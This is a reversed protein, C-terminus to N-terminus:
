RRAAPPGTRAGSFAADLARVAAIGSRVAGELTAPYPGAIYDGAAMLRPAIAAPPRALGPTCLFTARKETFSRVEAWPGAAHAALAARAQELTAHATAQLGRAVWEGAGSIVFAFLGPLGRLQGLDFVFQAPASGGHRLALMPQPLRTGASSLVVTVIPEHRLARASATWAPAHDQALRAAEVSSAALIAGDFSASGVRWGTALAELQMVREGWRLTAGRQALWHAAADPWLASLDVRPLLLDASGRGAFLADHLVRLFVSASAQAAPTNLAAICLPEILDARASAPLDRALEAVTLGDDCRFGDRAWGAAALLLRWRDRWPWGRCGLVARAFALRPAGAPLALAAGDAFALALPRRWLLRDADAGVLSMLRLTETYAGILIHQGNDLAPEAGDVRRARGGPRRAMEYLTVEHGFAVAEVAAALGAWGGGVVALHM